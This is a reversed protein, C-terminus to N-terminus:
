TAQLGRKNRVIRAAAKKEKAKERSPPLIGWFKEGGEKKRQRSSPV